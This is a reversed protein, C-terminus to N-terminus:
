VQQLIMASTTAGGFTRQTTNTAIESLKGLMAHLADLVPGSEGGGGLKAGTTVTPTVGGPLGGASGGPNPTTGGTGALTETATAIREQLGTQRTAHDLIQDTGSKANFGSFGGGGGIQTLNDGVALMTNVAGVGPAGPFKRDDYANSSAPKYKALMEDFSKHLGSTDFVSETKSFGKFDRFADTVPKLVDKGELNLLDGGSNKATEFGSAVLDKGTKRTADTQLFNAVTNADQHGKLIEAFSKPNREAQTQALHKGEIDSAAKFTNAVPELDVGLKKSVENMGSLMVSIAELILMRFITGSDEMADSMRQMAFDIGAVLTTLFGNAGDLITAGLILGAGALMKPIAVGFLAILGAWFSSDGLMKFEGTLIAGLVDFATAIAALLFNVGDEAGIKLSTSLFDGIQGGKFLNHLTGIADGIVHGLKAAEPALSGVFTILDQLFPKMNDVIPEGFQRFLEDVNDKLNTLMGGWTGMLEKGMGNFRGFSASAVRWMDATSAGSASMRELMKVTSGGLAGAHELMRVSEGLPQRNSIADYMRGIATAAEKIDMGTGAAVDGVMRLGNGTSIANGTFTQLVRSAGAIESLTFPANKSYEVLEKIRDKGAQVSGLLVGFQLRFREMEDTKNFAEKIGETVLHFAEMVGMVELTAKAISAFSATVEQAGTKVGRMDGTIGNLAESVKKLENILGSSDGLIDITVAPNNAM